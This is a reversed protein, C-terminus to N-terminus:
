PGAEGAHRAGLDPPLVRDPPPQRVRAIDDADGFAEVVRREQAWVRQRALEAAAPDQTDMVHVQLAWRSRSVEILLSGPVLSVMEATVWMAFESRTRLPVVLVANVPQRGFRLALTAVQLSSRVLDFVFIVVLRVLGWPHPRSSFALSPLPFLVLVAVAVVIGAVVNGVTFEGWLLCWVVTLWLVAPWQLARRRGSRDTTLSM